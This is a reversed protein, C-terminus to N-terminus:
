VVTLDNAYEPYATVWMDEEIMQRHVVNLTPAQGLNFCVQGGSAAAAGSDMLWHPTHILHLRHIQQKALMHNFLRPGAEVMVSLCNKETYLCKLVTTLCLGEGDEPVYWTQINSADCGHGVKEEPHMRYANSVVHIVPSVPRNSPEDVQQFIRHTREMLRGRRDLVVRIPQRELVLGERVTLQSDDALISEATTLIADHQGRLQHAWQKSTSSTMWAGSSSRVNVRGDSTLALKASVFPRQNEVAYFFAENARQCVSELVGGVVDIGAQKLAIQGSGTVNPNSDAVGFVVKAIGAQIIAQTCPPTKGTHNCPELNVYLTGGRAAKKGVSEVVSLAMAEAHPEGAQKHWGEAIRKGSRNLVVSGVVPNPRTAGRAREALQLCRGMWREDPTQYAPSPHYLVDELSLAHGVSSAGLFNTQRSMDYPGM